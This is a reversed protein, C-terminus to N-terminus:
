RRRHRGPGTWPAAGSPPWGSGAPLTAARSANRWGSDILAVASAADLYDLFSEEVAAFTSAMAWGAGSALLLAAALWRHLLNMPRIM